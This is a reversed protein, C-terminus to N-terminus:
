SLRAKMQMQGIAGVVAFGIAKLVGLRKKCTGECLVTLVFFPFFM